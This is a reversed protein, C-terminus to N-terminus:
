LWPEDDINYDRVSAHRQAERAQEEKMLGSQASSITRSIYDDPNKHRDMLGPSAESIATKLSDRDMGNKLLAKCTRYDLASDDLAWNKSQALGLQRKFESRYLGIPDSDDGSKEIWELRQARELDAVQQIAQEREYDASRRLKGLMRSAFGCVRHAAEIVKTFAKRRGPKRNSFGAMRFPHVAGSLHPDGYKKNLDACLRSAVKQEEPSEGKPIKIVAQHNDTSSKQIVCPKFGDQKLQNLAKKNVDDILIYHNNPDIPTIYIDWGRANKGRLEPILSEVQEPTFFEEGDDKKGMVWPKGAHDRPVLTLRYEPAQLAEHQERWAEVKVRHDPRLTRLDAVPQDAVTESALGAAHDAVHSAADGWADREVRLRDTFDDLADPEIPYQPAPRESESSRESEGVSGSRVESGEDGAPDPEGAREIGAEGRRDDSDSRRGASDDARESAPQPEPEGSGDKRRNEGSEKAAREPEPRDAETAREKISRLAESDRDQEYEIGKKQLKGWTFRDIDGSKVRIGEYEFAFGNLKGTSAINPIVRVGAAEIKEVFSLVTQPGGKLAESIVEFIVAKPAAEGTRASMQIEGSKLRLNPEDRADGLGATLTLGFRQELAQTSEIARRAEWKGHWLAGDLGIRSTLIHIHDHDTDQHRVAIWPRSDPDIGMNELHARAIDHWQDADLRDGAPLALSCHWVHRKADPRLNKMSGIERAIGRASTASCTGGVIEPRKDSTAKPGQDLIYDVAGRAGEGRSVKAKM